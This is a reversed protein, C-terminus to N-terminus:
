QSLLNLIEDDSLNKYDQMKPPVPNGKNQFGKIPQYVERLYSDPKIASVEENYRKIVNESSINDWEIIKRISQESLAIRGAAIDQAYERDKDSLGTGSGFATIREAVANGREAIFAETNSVDMGMAKAFQKVFDAGFGTIMGNNLLELSRRNISLTSLASEAAERKTKLREVYTEAGKKGTTEAAKTDETTQLKGSIPEINGEPTLTNGTGLGQKAINVAQTYSMKPNEAMIKQAVFDTGSNSNQIPLGSTKSFPKGDIMLIDDLPSKKKPMGEIIAGSVDKGNGPFLNPNAEYQMRSQPGINPQAVTGGDLGESYQALFNDTQQPGLGQEPPQVLRGYVDRPLYKENREQIQGALNTMQLQKMMMDLQSKADNLSATWSEVTAPDYQEPIEEPRAIGNQIAFQRRQTYSNQDKIGYLLKGINEIKLQKGKLDALETSANAQAIQANTAAMRPLNIDVPKVSLPINPNLPMNDESGIEQLAQM